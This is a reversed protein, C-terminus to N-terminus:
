VPRGCYDTANLRTEMPSSVSIPAPLTTMQSAAAPPQGSLATRTCTKIAQEGRVVTRLGPGCDRSIPAQM